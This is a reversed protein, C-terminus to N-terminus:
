QNDYSGEFYVAGINRKRKWELWKKRAEESYAILPGFTSIM